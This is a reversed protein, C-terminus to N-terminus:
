KFFSNLSSKSKSKANPTKSDSKGRMASGYLVVGRLGIGMESVNELNSEVIVSRGSAWAFQEVADRADDEYERYRPVKVLFCISDDNLRCYVSCKGNLKKDERWGGDEFIGTNILSSLKNSFQTALQIAQPSNGDAGGKPIGSLKSNADDLESKEFQGIENQALDDADIPPQFFRPALYLSLPFFIYGLVLGTIAQWRGLLAGDSRGIKVLAVHGLVIASLSTLITPLCTCLVIPSMIGLVFSTVASVSTRTTLPQSDSYQQM